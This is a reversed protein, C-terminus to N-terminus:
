REYYVEYLKGNKILQDLQECTYNLLEHALAKAIKLEEPSVNARENKTFGFIFFVKEGIKYALISRAGGSKGRGKLPIRKKYIHGGLNQM